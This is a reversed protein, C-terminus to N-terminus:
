RQKASTDDRKPSADRGSAPPTPVLWRLLQLGLFGLLVPIIVWGLLPFWASVVLLLPILWILACGVLTMTGKFGVDESAEQYELTYARRREISRRAADDLELARIEDQWSLGDGLDFSPGAGPAARPTAKVRQIAVDFRVVLAAWGPEDGGALSRDAELQGRPGTLIIQNCPTSQRPLYIARFLGGGAFRGHVLVPQGPMTEEAAAFAAVEAIEGGVFRLVDWGPFTPREDPEGPEFLVEDPRALVLDIVRTSRAPADPVQVRERFEALAPWFTDPLIPLVVQHVDGQLLNMEYAGDPKQDVPHVCLAPRESQLVRRLQDLREGPRGAVIVAEIAPDALIEELDAVRRLAPWDARLEEAARGCHYAVIGHRGSAALARAAAWGDPHDGVIAFRM